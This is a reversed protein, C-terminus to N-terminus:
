KGSREDFKPKRRFLGVMLALLVKIMYYVSRGPTISSVGALRPNMTVPVEALRFGSRHLLVISEPEPYDTPYISALFKITERGAARFGSTVDRIRQRIILSIFSRLIFMGLRRALPAPYKTKNGSFRSGIVMDAQHNVLSSVLKSIECAPHQGDADLQVVLAYGMESAFKFGTQQAVGIGMNYTLSIVEAGEQRAKGATGDTSGDDIVLIDTQPLHKKIDRVVESITQEENYAPIIVLTKSSM